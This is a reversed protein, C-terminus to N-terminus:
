SHDPLTIINEALRAKWQEIKARDFTEPANKYIKAAKAGKMLGNIITFFYKPNKMGRVFKGLLASLKTNRGAGALDSSQIVANDFLFDVGEAPMKLLSNKLGENKATDGGYQIHFERNYKWLAKASYDGNCSIVTDALLRGALLSLDIGMGNMPTTMFASDGVAAYGDAVMVALPRRVPIVEFSGGHLIRDDFWPHSKRFIELQEAVKNSQFDPDVRGILIDVSDENTCFWSLGPECEHYLYVEFPFEPSIDSTKGFYARYAYFADGRELNRDIGFETPLMSRLISFSGLADIVLKATMAGESTNVGVVRGNEIIPSNVNVGFRIDAGGKEAYGILANILPKRWMVRQRNNEDYKIKVSTRHSPSIFACDGRYRWCDPVAIAGDSVRDLVDFTFRDEWDHGIVIRKRRELVTVKFGARALVGAAILGGHGAGAVIIDASM